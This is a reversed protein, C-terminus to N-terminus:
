LREHQCRNKQPAPAPEVVPKTEPITLPELEWEKQDEGIDGCIINIM